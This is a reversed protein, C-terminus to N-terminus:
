RDPMLSLVFYPTWLTTELRVSKHPLPLIPTPAQPCFHRANKFTYNFILAKSTIGEM